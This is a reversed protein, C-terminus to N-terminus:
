QTKVAEGYVNVEVGPGYEVRKPSPTFIARDATAQLLKLVKREAELREKLGSTFERIM